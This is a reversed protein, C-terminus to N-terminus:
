RVLQLLETQRVVDIYASAGQFLTSQATNELFDVAAAKDEAAGRREFNKQFGDFVNQRLNLTMTERLEKAPKGRTSRRTPSDIREYGYDSTLNVTPLFFAKTGRLRQDAANVREEDTRIVPHTAALEALAEELTVARAPGAVGLAGAVLAAALLRVATHQGVLMGVSVRKM